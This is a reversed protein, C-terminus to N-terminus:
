GRLFRPGPRRPRWRRRSLVARGLSRVPGRLGSQRRAPMELRFVPRLGFNLGGAPGAATVPALCLTQVFLPDALRAFPSGTSSSGPRVPEAGGAARNDHVNLFLASLLRRVHVL